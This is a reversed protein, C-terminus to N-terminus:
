SDIYDCLTKGQGDKLKDETVIIKKGDPMRVRYKGKKKGRKFKYIDEVPRWYGRGRKEFWVYM